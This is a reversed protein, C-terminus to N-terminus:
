WFAIEPAEPVPNSPLHWSSRLRTVYGNDVSAGTSGCAVLVHRAGASAWMAGCFTSNRSPPLLIRLGRGTRASFAAVTQTTGGPRAVDALVVSGDPTILTNAPGSFGGVGAGAALLRETRPTGPRGAGRIIWVSQGWDYALDGSATWSLSMPYDHGPRFTHMIRGSALDAVEIQSPGANGTACNSLTSAALTSGDPTVALGALQSDCHARSTLTLPPVRTPRLPGPRGSRGVELFYFRVQAAQSARSAIAFIFGRRTCVPGTSTPASGSSASGSVEAATCGAAAIGAFGYGAPAPVTAVVKGTTTRRVVATRAQNGAFSVYYPVRAVARTGAPPPSPTRKTIPTPGIHHHAPIQAAILAAATGAAALAIAAASAHRIARRRARHRIVTLDPPVLREFPEAWAAVRERLDDDLM